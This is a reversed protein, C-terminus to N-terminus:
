FTNISTNTRIYEMQPILWWQWECFEGSYTDKFKKHLSLLFIRQQTHEPDNEKYLLAPVFNFKHSGAFLFENIKM